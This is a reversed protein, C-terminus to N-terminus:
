FLPSMSSAQGTTPLTSSGQQTTTSVATETQEQPAATCQGVEPVENTVSASWPAFVNFQNQVNQMLYPTDTPNDLIKQMYPLAGATLYMTRVMYRMVMLSRLMLYDFGATAFWQVSTPQPYLDAFSQLGTINQELNSGLTVPTVFPTTVPGMSQSLMLYGNCLGQLILYGMPYPAYQGSQNAQVFSSINLYYGNTDQEHYGAPFAASYMAAAMDYVNAMTFIGSSTQNNPITPLGSDSAQSYTVACGSFQFPFDYPNLKIVGRLEPNSSIAQTYDSDSGQCIVGDSLTVCNSPATAGSNAQQAIYENLPGQVINTPVTTNRKTTMAAPTVVLCAESSVGGTSSNTLNQVSIFGSVEMVLAWPTPMAFFNALNFTAIPDGSLQGNDFVAISNQGVLAVAYTITSNSSSGWQSAGSGTNLMGYNIGVARGTISGNTVMSGGAGAWNDAVGAAPILGSKGAFIVGYNNTPLPTVTSGSANTLTNTSAYFGPNYTSGSVTTPLVNNVLVIGMFSDLLSLTSNGTQYTYELDNTTTGTTPMTPGTISSASAFPSFPDTNDAGPANNDQENSPPLQQSQGASSTVSTLPEFSGPWSILPMGLAALAYQIRQLYFVAQSTFNAAIPANNVSNGSYNGTYAFLSTLGNAATTVRAIYNQVLAAYYYQVAEIDLSSFSSNGGSQMLTQIQPAHLQINNYATNKFLSSLPQYTLTQENSDYYSVFSGTKYPFGLISNAITTVPLQTTVWGKSQGQAQYTQISANIPNTSSAQSQCAQQFSAIQTDSLFYFNGKTDQFQFGSFNNGELSQMYPYLSSDWSPATTSLVTPAVGYSASPSSAQVTSVGVM